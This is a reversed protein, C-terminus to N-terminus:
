GTPTSLFDALVRAWVSVQWEEARTKASVEFTGDTPNPQLTGTMTFRARDARQNDLCRVTLSVFHPEKDTNKYHVVWIPTVMGQVPTRDDKVELATLAVTWDRTSYSAGELEVRTGKPIRIMLNSRTWVTAPLEAALLLAFLL